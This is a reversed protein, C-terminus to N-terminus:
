ASVPVPGIGTPTAPALAAEVAVDEIGQVLAEMDQPPLSRVNASMTFDVADVADNVDLYLSQATPEDDTVWRHEGLAVARRIEQETPLPGTPSARNERRDNFFCSLDVKVGREETMREVLAKRQTPDYYAYKYAGMAARWARTIAEDVTVDAVDIVCPSIQAVPSVSDRFRPRFRNNVALTVVVPSIRTMRALAIAFLGLLVPSTDVGHRAAIVRAALLTAPSRFGIMRYEPEGPDIPEPLRQPAVSRLVRELHRLSADCQRQAAPTAQRRAQELPQMATVPGAAEGTERDRAALDAILANLGGADIYLHLYVAVVHTVVGDRRVAAMRVPWEDTYDFNTSQYRERVEDAAADADGDGVDVVELAAEGEAAVEQRVAGDEAFRLRTRLAQHRSMVFHLTAAVDAVTLGVPVRVLGGMTKSRGSLVITQWIGKQGWALGGTGSGEGHFPVLIQDAM